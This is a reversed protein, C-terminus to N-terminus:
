TVRQHSIWVSQIEKWCRGDLRVTMAPGADVPPGDGDIDWWRGCEIHLRMRDTDPYPNHCYAVAESGQVQTRCDAGSFPPDDAAGGPGRAPPRGDERTAHSAADYPLAVLLLIAAFVPILRHSLRM